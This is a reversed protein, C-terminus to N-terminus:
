RRVVQASKAATAAAAKALEARPVLLPGAEDSSINVLGRCAAARCNCPLKEDGNFRYDYTFEDGAGIGRQLVAVSLLGILRSIGRQPLVDFYILFILCTM